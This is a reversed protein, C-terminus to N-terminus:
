GHEKRQLEDSVSNCKRHLETIICSFFIESAFIFVLLGHLLNSILNFSVYLHIQTVEILVFLTPLPSKLTTGYFHIYFAFNLNPESCRCLTDSPHHSHAAPLLSPPTFDEM